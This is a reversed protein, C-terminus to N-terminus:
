YAQEETYVYRRKIVNPLLSLNNDIQNMKTAAESRSTVVINLVAILLHAIGQVDERITYKVFSGTTQNGIYTDLVDKPGDQETISALSEVSMHLFVELRM